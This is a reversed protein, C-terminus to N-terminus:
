HVTNFFLYYSFFIWHNRHTFMAEWQQTRQVKKTFQSWNEGTVKPHVPISRASSAESRAVKLNNLPLCLKSMTWQTLGRNFFLPTLGMLLFFCVPCPLLFHKATSDFTNCALYGFAYFSWQVTCWLILYYLCFRNFLHWTTCLICEHLLRLCPGIDREKMGRNFLFLCLALQFVPTPKPSPLPGKEHRGWVFFCAQYRLIFLFRVCHHAFFLCYMFSTRKCLFLCHM